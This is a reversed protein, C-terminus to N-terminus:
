RNQATVPNDGLSSPRLCGESTRPRESCHHITCAKGLQIISLDRSWGVSSNSTVSCAIYYLDNSTYTISLSRCITNIKIIRDLNKNEPFGRKKPCEGLGTKVARFPGLKGAV